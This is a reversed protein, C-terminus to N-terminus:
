PYWRNQRRNRLRCCMLIERLHDVGRPSLLALSAGGRTEHRSSGDCALNALRSQHMTQSDQALEMPVTPDEECVAFQLCEDLELMLELRELYIWRHPWSSADGHPCLDNAIQHGLHRDHCRV